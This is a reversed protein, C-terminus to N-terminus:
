PTEVPHRHGRHQGSRYELSQLMMQLFHFGKRGPAILLARYGIDRQRTVIGQAVEDM